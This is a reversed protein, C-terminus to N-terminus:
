GQCGGDGSRSVGPQGPGLWASSHARHAGASADSGWLFWTEPPVARGPWAFWAGKLQAPGRFHSIKRSPLPGWSSACFKPTVLVHEPRSKEGASTGEGWCGMRPHWTEAPAPPSKGARALRGGRSRPSDGESAALHQHFLQKSKCFASQWFIKCELLSPTVLLSASSRPTSIGAGSGAGPTAPTVNAGTRGAGPSCCGGSRRRSRCARGQGSMPVESTATECGVSGLLNIFCEWFSPAIPFVGRCLPPTRM